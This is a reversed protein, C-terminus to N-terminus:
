YWQVNAPGLLHRQAFLNVEHFSLYGLIKQLIEPPLQLISRSVNSSFELSEEDASMEVDSWDNGFLSNISRELENESFPLSSLEGSSDDDDFNDESSYSEYSWLSFQDEDLQHEEGQMQVEDPVLNEGPDLNEGPLQDENPLLDDQPLQDDEPMKAEGDQGQASAM